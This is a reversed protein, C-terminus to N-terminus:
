GATCRGVFFALSLFLMLVVIGCCGLGCGASDEDESDEFLPRQNAVAVVRVRRAM